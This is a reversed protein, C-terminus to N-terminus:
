AQRPALEIPRAPLVGQLPRGPGTLEPLHRLLERRAESDLGKITSLSVSAFALVHTLRDRLKPHHYTLDRANCNYAAFTPEISHLNSSYPPLHLLVVSNLTLIKDM